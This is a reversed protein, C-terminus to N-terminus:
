RGGGADGSVGGPVETVMGYVGRRVDGAERRSLGALEHVPAAVGAHAVDLRDGV